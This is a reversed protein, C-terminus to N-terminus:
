KSTEWDPVIVQWDTAEIDERTFFDVYKGYSSLLRDGLLPHKPLYIYHESDLWDPRAVYKGDLIAQIAEAFTM